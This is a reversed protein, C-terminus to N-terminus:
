VTSCLKYYYISYWWVMEAVFSRHFPVAFGTVTSFFSSKVLDSFYIALPKLVIIMLTGFLLVSQQKSFERRFSTQEFCERHIAALRVFSLLLPYHFMRTYYPHLDLSHISTISTVYLLFLGEGIHIFQKTMENSQRLTRIEDRILKLIPIVTLGNFMYTRITSIGAAAVLLRFPKSSLQYLDISRKITRRANLWRTWVTKEFRRQFDRYILKEVSASLETSYREAIQM